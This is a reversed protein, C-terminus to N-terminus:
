PPGGNAPLEDKLHSTEDSNNNTSPAATCRRWIEVEVTAVLLPLDPTGRVVFSAVREGIEFPLGSDHPSPDRPLRVARIFVDLREPHPREGVIEASWAVPRGSFAARLVHPLALTADSLWPSPEWGVRLPPLREGRLLRKRSTSREDSSGVRDPSLAMERSLEALRDWPVRTLCLRDVSM